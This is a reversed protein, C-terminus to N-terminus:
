DRIFIFKNKSLKKLQFGLQIGHTDFWGKEMEIAYSAPENSTLGKEQFFRIIPDRYSYKRFDSPSFVPRLTDMKEPYAKLESIEIVRLEEDLFAVSLDMFCNFMWLQQHQHEKFIFLMGENEGLSYRGMLGWQLKEPTDAEELYMVVSDALLSFPLFLFVCLKVILSHFSLFMGLDM